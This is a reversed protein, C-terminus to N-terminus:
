IEDLKIAREFYKAIEYPCNEDHMIEDMDYTYFPVAERCLPCTSRDGYDSAHADADVELINSIM